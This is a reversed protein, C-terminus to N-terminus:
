TEHDGISGGGHVRLPARRAPSNTMAGFIRIPLIDSFDPRLLGFAVGIM